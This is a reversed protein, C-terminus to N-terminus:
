ELAPPEWPGSASTTGRGGGADISCACSGLLSLALGLSVPFASAHCATSDYGSPPCSLARRCLTRTTSLTDAHVPASWLLPFCVPPVPCRTTAYARNCLQSPTSAFGSLAASWSRALCMARWARELANAGSLCARRGHAGHRRQACPRMSSADDIATPRCTRGASVSQVACSRPSWPPPTRPSTIRYLLERWCGSRGPM